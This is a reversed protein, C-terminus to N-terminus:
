PKHVFNPHNSINTREFNAASAFTSVTTFHHCDVKAATIFGLRVNKIIFLDRFHEDDSASALIAERPCTKIKECLAQAWGHFFSGPM